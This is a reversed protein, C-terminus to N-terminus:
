RYTVEPKFNELTESNRDIREKILPFYSKEREVGISNFNELLAAEVTTGSGLFPDLVTGNVPTVLKVLERMLSLPKVTTHKVINGADDTYSPKEKASPKAVYFFRPLNGTQADWVEAISEDTIINSTWLGNVKCAGINLAGTDHKLVNRAVSTESLPKRAVTIPEFAPRLATGWGDWKQGEPTSPKYEKREFIRKEGMLGNNRGSVTYTKGDGSQELKRLYRTHSSGYKIESEVIKSINMSKPMAGSYWWQISDRIEFGALRISISMLDFTRSSSFSLLYGGPKLVRFVEDWLAPPPVFSDWALTMFGKADPIFSREGQTWKVITDTVDEVSLHSLGYPPDTVVSDVSDDPLTKLAELADNEYIDIKITNTEM